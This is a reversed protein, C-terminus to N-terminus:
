YRVSSVLESARAADAVSCPTFNQDRNTRTVFWKQSASSRSPVSTISSLKSRLEGDSLHGSTYEFLALQIALVLAKTSQDPIREVDWVYDAVADQLQEVDIKRNVFNVALNLLALRIKTM